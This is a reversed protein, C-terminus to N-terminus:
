LVFVRGWWSGELVLLPLWGRESADERSEEWGVVKVHNLFGKNMHQKEIGYDGPEAFFLGASGACCVM